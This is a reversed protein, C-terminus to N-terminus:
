KQWIRVWDVQMANPLTSEDLRPLEWGSTLMSLVLHEPVQSVGQTVKGTVVGDVRFIYAHPTWEVSFVHYRKFWDDDDGKLAKRANLALRTAPFGGPAKQHVGSEDRYHVFTHVDGYFFKKGFYEAVDIEAGNEAPGQGEVYRQTTQLWFAGHAGANEDFKVRAATFGYRFRGAENPVDGTGIHGNKYWNTANEYPVGLDNIGQCPGLMEGREIDVQASLSLRGHSVDVADPHSTSCARDSAAHYAFAYRYSWKTLDLQDGTFEDSFRTTWIRASQPKAAVRRLDKWPRAVGRYAYWRGEPDRAPQIFRVVGWRNQKRVSVREWAQRGVRRQLVVPRGRRAPHFRVRGILRARDAADVRGGPQVVPPTLTTKGSQNM